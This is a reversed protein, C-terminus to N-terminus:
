KNTRVRATPNLTRSSVPFVFNLGYFGLKNLSHVPTYELPFPKRATQIRISEREGFYTLLGVIM